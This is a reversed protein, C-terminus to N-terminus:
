GPPSCVDNYSALRAAELCVHLCHTPKADHLETSVRKSIQMERKWNMNKKNNNNRLEFDFRFRLTILFGKGLYSRTSIKRQFTQLHLISELLFEGLRLRWSIISIGFMCPAGM